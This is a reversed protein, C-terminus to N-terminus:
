DDLEGPLLNWGPDKGNVTPTLLKAKIDDVYRREDDDLKVFMHRTTPRGKPYTGDYGKEINRPLDMIQALWEHCLKEAGEIYRWMSMPVFWDDHGIISDKTDVIGFWGNWVYPEDDHVQLGTIARWRDHLVKTERTLPDRSRM